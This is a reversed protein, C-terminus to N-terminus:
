LQGCYSSSLCCVHISVLKSQIYSFIKEGRPFDFMTGPQGSLSHPRQQQLGELGSQDQFFDGLLRSQGQKSCFISCCVELTGEM